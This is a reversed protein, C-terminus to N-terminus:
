EAQCTGTVSYSGQNPFEFEIEYEDGNVFTFATIASEGNLSGWTDGANIEDDSATYETTAWLNGNSVNYQYVTVASADIAQDGTNSFLYDLRGNDADCQIDRVTLETNLQQEAEQQQGSIIGQTWIYAAGAAAVTMMLLLVMAVVPTIGKRM